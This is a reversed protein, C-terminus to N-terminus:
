WGQDSVIVKKCFDYDCKGNELNKLKNNSVSTLSQQSYTKELRKTPRDAVSAYLRTQYLTRGSFRHKSGFASLASGPRADEASRLRVLLFCFNESALLNNDLLHCCYIMCFFELLPVLSHMFLALHGSYEEDRKTISIFCFRALLTFSFKSWM